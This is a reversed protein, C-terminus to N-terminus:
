RDFDVTKYGQFLFGSANSIIGFVTLPPSLLRM